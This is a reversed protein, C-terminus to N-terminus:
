DDNTKREGNGTKLATARISSNKEASSSGPFKGGALLRGMAAMVIFGEGKVGSGRCSEKGVNESKKLHVAGGRRTPQVRRTKRVLVGVGSRGCPARGKESEGKSQGGEGGM